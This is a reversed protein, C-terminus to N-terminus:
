SSREQIEYSVLLLHPEGLSTFVSTSPPPSIPIFTGHREKIEAMRLLWGKPHLHPATKAPMSNTSPFEEKPPVTGHCLM